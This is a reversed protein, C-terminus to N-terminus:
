EEKLGAVQEALAKEMQQLSTPEWVPEAEATRGEAAERCGLCAWKALWPSWAVDNEYFTGECHSCRTVM